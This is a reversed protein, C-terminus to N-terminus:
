SRTQYSGASISAPQLRTKGSTAFPPRWSTQGGEAGGAGPLGARRGAWSPRSRAWTAGQGLQRGHEDTVRFNMFLHAPLMDLKFDTRKV